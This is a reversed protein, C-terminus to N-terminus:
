MNKRFSRKYCSNNEDDSSSDDSVDVDLAAERLDYISSDDDDSSDNDDHIYLERVAKRLENAAFQDNRYEQYGPQQTAKYAHFKLLRAGLPAEVRAGFDHLTLDPSLDVIQIAAIIRDKYLHLHDEDLPHEQDSPLYHDLLYKFTCYHDQDFSKGNEIDAKVAVLATKLKHLREIEDDCEKATHPELMKKVEAACSQSVLAPYVKEYILYIFKLNEETNELYYQM